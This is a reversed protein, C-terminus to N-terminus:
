WAALEGGLTRERSPARRCRMGTRWRRRWTSLPLARSPRVAARGGPGSPRRRGKSIDTVKVKFVPMTHFTVTAWIVSTDMEGLTKVADAPGGMDFLTIVVRAGRDDMMTADDPVPGQACRRMEDLLGLCLTRAVAEIGTVDFFADPSPGVDTVGDTFLM